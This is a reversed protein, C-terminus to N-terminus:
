NGNWPSAKPGHPSNWAKMGCFECKFTGEKYPNKPKFPKFSHKCPSKYDSRSTEKLIRRVISLYTRTKNIEHQDTESLETMVEFHVLKNEFEDLEQITLM